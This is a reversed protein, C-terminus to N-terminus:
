GRSEVLGGSNEVLVTLRYSSSMHATLLALLNGVVIDRNEANELFARGYRDAPLFAFSRFPDASVGPDEAGHSDRMISADKPLLDQVFDPDALTKTAKALVGLCGPVVGVDLHHLLFADERAEKRADQNAKLNRQLDNLTNQVFDREWIKEEIKDPQTLHPMASFKKKEALLLAVDMEPFKPKEVAPSAEQRPAQGGSKTTKPQGRHLDQHLSTQSPVRQISQGHGDRVPRPPPVRERVGSPCSLAGVLRGTSGWLTSKKAFASAVEQSPTIRRKAAM